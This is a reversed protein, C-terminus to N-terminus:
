NVKSDSGVMRLYTFAKQILIDVLGIVTAFSMGLILGATGGVDSLFNEIGYEAVETYCVEEVETMYIVMTSTKMGNMDGVGNTSRRYIANQFSDTNLQLIEFNNM